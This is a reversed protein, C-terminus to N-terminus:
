PDNGINQIKIAMRSGTASALYRIKNAIGHGGTAPILIAFSIQLLKKVVTLKPIKLRRLSYLVLTLFPIERRCVELM